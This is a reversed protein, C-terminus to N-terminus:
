EILMKAIATHGNKCSWLFVTMGETKIESCLEYPEYPRPQFGSYPRGPVEPFIRNLDVNLEAFREIFMKVIKTHGNQCALEIGLLLTEVSLDLSFPM